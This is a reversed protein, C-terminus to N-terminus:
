FQSPSRSRFAFTYEKVQDIKSTSNSITDTIAACAKWGQANLKLETLLLGEEEEPFLSLM